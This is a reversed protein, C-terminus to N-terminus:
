FENLYQEVDATSLHVYKMTTAIQRHRAARQVAFAGAGRQVLRTTFAHRLLHPHLREIGATAGTKRIMRHFLHYQTVYSRPSLIEGAFSWAHRGGLEYGNARPASLLDSLLGKIRKASVSEERQGKGVFILEGTKLARTVAPRTLRLVEEARLGVALPLLALARKGHPLDRACLEYAKLDEESPILLARKVRHSIPLAKDIWSGDLGAEVSARRVAARLLSKSSEPWLQLSPDVRFPPTIRGFARDLARGYAEATKPALARLM